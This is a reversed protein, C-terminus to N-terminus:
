LDLPAVPNRGGSVGRAAIVVVVDDGLCYPLAVSSVISFLSCAM